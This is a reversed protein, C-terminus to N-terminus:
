LPWMLLSYLNTVIGVKKNHHFSWAMYKPMFYIFMILFNIIIFVNKLFPELINNLWNKNRSQENFINRTPEATWVKMRLYFWLHNVYNTACYFKKNCPNQPHFKSHFSSLTVKHLAIIWCLIISDFTLYLNFLACHSHNSLQYSSSM